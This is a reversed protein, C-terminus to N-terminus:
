ESQGSAQTLKAKEVQQRFEELVADRKLKGKKVIKATVLFGRLGDILDLLHAASNLDIEIKRDIAM